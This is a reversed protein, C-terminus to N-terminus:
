MCLYFFACTRHMCKENICKEVCVYSFSIYFYVVDKQLSRYFKLDRTSCFGNVFIVQCLKVALKVSGVPLKAVLQNVNFFFGAVANIKM